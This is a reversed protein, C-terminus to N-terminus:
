LSAEARGTAAFFKTIHEWRRESRKGQQVGRTRRSRSRQDGQEEEMNGSGRRGGRLNQELDERQQSM